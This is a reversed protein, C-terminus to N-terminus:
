TVDEKSVGRQVIRYGKTGYCFGDKKHRLLLWGKQSTVFAIRKTVYCFGDKKHRLLLWGKQSTVFAM